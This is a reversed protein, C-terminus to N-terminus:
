RNSKFRKNSDNNKEKAAHILETIQEQTAGGTIKAWDYLAGPSVCLLESPALSAISQWTIKNLLSEMDVSIIQPITIEIKNTM